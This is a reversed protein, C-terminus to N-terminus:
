RRHMRKWRRRFCDLFWSRQQLFVGLSSPYMPVVAESVRTPFSSTGAVSDSFGTGRVVVFVSLESESATKWRAGGRGEAVTASCKVERCVEM